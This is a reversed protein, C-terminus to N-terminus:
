LIMWKPSFFFVVERGGTFSCIRRHQLCVAEKLIDSCRKWFYNCYNVCNIQRHKTQEPPSSPATSPSHCDSSATHASDPRPSHSREWWILHTGTDPFFILEEGRQLRMCVCKDKMKHQFHDTSTTQWTLQSKCFQCQACIDSSDHPALLEGWSSWFSPKIKM